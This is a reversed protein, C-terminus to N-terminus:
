MVLRSGQEASLAGFMPTYGVVDEFVDNQAKLDVYDPYSSTSFQAGRSANASTYVDVLRNPESVPLPKFLLADVVTFLATNFGIGIALSIVAVFTFGPSRALWRLAYRVDALWSELLVPNYNARVAFSCVIFPRARWNQVNIARTAGIM